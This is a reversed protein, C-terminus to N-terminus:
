NLLLGLFYLAFISQLDDRVDLIENGSPQTVLFVPTWEPFPRQPRELVLHPVAVLIRIQHNGQAPGPPNRRTDDRTQITSIRFLMGPHFGITIAMAPDGDIRGNLPAM